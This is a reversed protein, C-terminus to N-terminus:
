RKQRGRGSGGGMPTGLGELVGCRGTKATTVCVGLWQGLVERVQHLHDIQQDVKVLRAGILEQVDHCPTANGDHFDLLLGIDKLTFGAAQAARIFLLRERTEEGYLRYNGGSREDPPLLGRREYYRM